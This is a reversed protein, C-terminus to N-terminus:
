KLSYKKIASETLVLGLDTLDEITKYNIMRPKLDKAWVDFTYYGNIAFIVKGSQSYKAEFGKFIVREKAEQYQKLEKEDFAYEFDNNPKMGILKEIPEELVNGDKDTPIFFGLELNLKLFNAYRFIFGLRTSNYADFDQSIERESNYQSIVYDSCKVLKEM